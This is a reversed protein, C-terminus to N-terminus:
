TTYVVGRALWDHGMLYPENGKVVLLPLKNTQNNNTAVVTISGLIQCIKETYM